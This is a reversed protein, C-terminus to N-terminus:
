SRSPPARGDHSLLSASICIASKSHWHFRTEPATQPLATETYVGARSETSAAIAGTLRQQTSFLESEARQFAGPFAAPKEATFRGHGDNLLIAVPQRFWATSVVLDIAHDGNVDRAEILLGGPPAVLRISRQGELSLRLDVWYSNSASGNQGPQIYAFDARHDGDFDAIAFSTGRGVSATPAYQAHPAASTSRAAFGFLLLLFICATLGSLARRNGRLDTLDYSKRM